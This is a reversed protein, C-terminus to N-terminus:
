SSRAARWRRSPLIAASSCVRLELVSCRVRRASPSPSPSRSRSASRSGLRWPPSPRSWPASWSRPSPSVCRARASRSGWAVCGTCSGVAADSAGWRADFTASPTSWARVIARPLRRPAAVRTQSGTGRRGVHEPEGCPARACGRRSRRADAAACRGGRRALAARSPWRVM